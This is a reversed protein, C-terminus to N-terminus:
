ATGCNRDRLPVIRDTNRVLLSSPGRYGIRQLVKMEKCRDPRVLFSWDTPSSPKCRDGSSGDTYAWSCNPVPRPDKLTCRWDPRCIPRGVALGFRRRRIDIGFRFMSGARHETGNWNSNGTSSDLTWSHTSTESTSRIATASALAEKRWKILGGGSSRRM